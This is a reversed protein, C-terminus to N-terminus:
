NIFVTERIYIYTTSLKSLYASIMRKNLTWLKWHHACKQKAKINTRKNLEAVGWNEIKRTNMTFLSPMVRMVWPQYYSFPFISLYIRASKCSLLLIWYLDFFRLGCWCLSEEKYTFVSTFPKRICVYTCMYSFPPLDYFWNFKM